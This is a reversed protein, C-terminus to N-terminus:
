YLSKKRQCEQYHQKTRPEDTTKFIYGCLRNFKSFYRDKSKWVLDARAENCCKFWYPINTMFFANFYKEEKLYNDTPIQRDLISSFSHRYGDLIFDERNPFATNKAIFERATPKGIRKAYKNRSSTDIASNSVIPDTEPDSLSVKKNSDKLEKNTFSQTKNKIPTINHIYKLKLYPDTTTSIDPPQHLGNAEREM